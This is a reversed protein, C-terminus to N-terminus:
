RENKSKVGINMRLKTRIIIGEDKERERVRKREKTRKRKVETGIREREQGLRENRKGDKEKKFFHAM